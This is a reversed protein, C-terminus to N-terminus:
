KEYMIEAETGYNLKKQPSYYDKYLPSKMTIFYQLRCGLSSLLCLFVILFDDIM